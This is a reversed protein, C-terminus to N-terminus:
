SFLRRDWWVPVELGVAIRGFDPHAANFVFNREM